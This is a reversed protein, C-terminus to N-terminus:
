DTKEEVEIDLNFIRLQGKVSIPKILRVNRLFWSWAGDYIKCGAAEEHNKTMKKVDYLEAICLAYGAPPTDPSKSSCIILDGRYTTEWVRTEITKKGSCIMNAYPQKVSLAKREM